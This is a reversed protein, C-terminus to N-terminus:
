DDGKRKPRPRHKREVASSATIFAFLEDVYCPDLADIQEPTWHYRETLM